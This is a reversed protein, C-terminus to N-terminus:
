WHVPSYHIFKRQKVYSSSACRRIIMEDGNSIFHPVTSRLPYLPCLFFYALVLCFPLKDTWKYVIALWCRRPVASAFAPNESAASTTHPKNQKSNSKNTRKITWTQIISNQRLAIKRSQETRRHRRRARGANWRKFRFFWSKHALLRVFWHHNNNTCNTKIADQRRRWRAWHNM